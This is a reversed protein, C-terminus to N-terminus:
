YNEENAVLTKLEIKRERKDAKSAPFTVTLSIKKFRVKGDKKIENIELQPEFDAVDNYSFPVAMNKAAKQAKIEEAAFKGSPILKFPLSVLQEMIELAMTHARFETETVMMNRNGSSFTFFVPLLILGLIGMAILIEVLSVGQKAQTNTM